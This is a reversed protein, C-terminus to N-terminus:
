QADWPRPAGVGAPVQAQAPPAYQQVPPAYQQAPPAAQGQPANWGAGNQHVQEVAAYEADSPMDLGVFPQSGAKNIMNVRFALEDGPQNVPPAGKESDKANVGRLANAPAFKFVEGLHVEGARPGSCVLADSLVPFTLRKYQDPEGPQFERVRFVVLVPGSACLERLDLFDGGGVNTGRKLSM